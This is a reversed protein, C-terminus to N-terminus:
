RRVAGNRVATLLAEAKRQAAIQADDVRLEPLAPPAGNGRRRELQGFRSATFVLGLEIRLERGIHIIPTLFGTAVM